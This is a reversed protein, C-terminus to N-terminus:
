NLKKRVTGNLHPRIEGDREVLLEGHSGIGRAIGHFEKNPTTVSIEQDLLTDYNPWKAAFSAFGTNAFESLTSVLGDIIAATLKNRDPQSGTIQQIDTWPQDLQTTTPEPMTVNVGIGIIVDTSGNSEATMDVLIGAMKKNHHYIDNPWKVELGDVGQNKLADVIAIALALSLGALETPDKNFHWYISMYINSAYPAHWKKGQRGRGATQHEALLISGSKCGKKLQNFLATNTSSVTDEIQISALQQQTEPALMQLIRERNFMDLPQKFQYGKGQHRELPIGLEALKHMIKWVASRTINLKSGIEQGSRSEGSALLTIVQYINQNKM